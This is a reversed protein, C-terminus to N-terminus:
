FHREQDVGQRFKDAIEIYKQRFKDVNETLHQTQISILTEQFLQALSFQGDSHLKMKTYASASSSMTEGTTTLLATPLFQVSCTPCFAHKLQHGNICTEGHQNQKTPLEGIDRFKSSGKKIQVFGPVQTKILCREDSITGYVYMCDIDQMPCQALHCAYAGGEQSSGSIFSESGVNM